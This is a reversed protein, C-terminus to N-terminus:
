QTKLQTLPIWKDPPASPSGFFFKNGTRIVMYMELTCYPKDSLTPMSSYVVDGTTFVVTKNRQVAPISHGELKVICGGSEDKKIELFPGDSDAGRGFAGLYDEYHKVDPMKGFISRTSKDKAPVLHAKQYDKWLARVFAKSADDWKDSALSKTIKGDLEALPGQKDAALANTGLGITIAIALCIMRKM